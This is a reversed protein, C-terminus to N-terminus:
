EIIRVINEHKSLKFAAKAERHFRKRVNEDMLFNHLIKIAVDNDFGVRNARYVTGYAGAGLREVLRYKQDLVLNIYPDSSGPLPVSEPSPLTPPPPPLTLPPEPETVLPITAPQQLTRLSDLIPPPVLTADADLGCHPCQSSDSSLPKQCNPCTM